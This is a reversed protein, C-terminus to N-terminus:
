GKGVGEAWTVSNVVIVDFIVVEEDPVYIVIEKKEDTLYSELRV